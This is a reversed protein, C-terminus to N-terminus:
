HPPRLTWNEVKFKNIMFKAYEVSDRHKRLRYTKEVGVINAYEQEWETLKDEQEKTTVRMSYTLLGATKIIEENTPNDSFAAPYEKEISTNIKVKEEEWGLIRALEKTDLMKSSREERWALKLALSLRARYDGEFDRALEHAKKMIRRLM